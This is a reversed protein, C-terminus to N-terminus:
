WGSDKLQSRIYALTKPAQAELPGTWKCEVSLRADIGAQRAAKLFPRFDDGKAGPESREAKEALHMHRILHGYKAVEGPDEGDRLMHFFDALLAVSPHDAAQVAAAGEALSNIFNCEGKNLPEVVVTVGLGEAIPGLDKLLSAFQKFAAERSFGDPIQRSGGSGFVIIDMGIDHARRFATEAYALIAAPQATPGTSKLAGPLFCNAAALPLGAARLKAVNPEFAAADKQPVLFSQVNEEFFDARAAKVTAAQDVSACIGLQM